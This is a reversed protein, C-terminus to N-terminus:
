NTKSLLNLILWYYNQTLFIWFRSIIFTLAAIMFVQNCWLKQKQLKEILEVYKEMEGVKRLNKEETPKSYLKERLNLINM